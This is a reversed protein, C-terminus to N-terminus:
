NGVLWSTLWDLQRDIWNDILGITSWDLQQDTCNDILGITSCDLQRGTWKDVLGITLRDLQQDTCNDILGITSCDLQQDTCNDILGITSCDLQWDTWNDVLGITLRDLQWDTWNDIVGITLWEFQRDNLNDIMWNTSTWMTSWVIQKDVDQRKSIKETPVNAKSSVVNRRAVVEFAFFDKGNKRMTKSFFKSVSKFESILRNLESRKITPTKKWPFMFCCDFIQVGILKPQFCFFRM